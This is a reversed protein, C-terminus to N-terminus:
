HEKVLINWGSNHFIWCFKMMEKNKKDIFTLVLMPRHWGVEKAKKLATRRYMYDESNVVYVMKYSNLNFKCEMKNVMDVGELPDTEKRVSGGEKEVSNATGEEKVTGEKPLGEKSDENEKEEKKETSGEGDEKPEEKPKEKDEDQTSAATTKNVDETDKEEKVKIGPQKDQTGSTSSQIVDDTSTKQLRARRINRDHSSFFFLNYFKLLDRKNEWEM